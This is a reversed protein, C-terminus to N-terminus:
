VHIMNTRCYRNFQHRGAATLLSQRIGVSGADGPADAASM